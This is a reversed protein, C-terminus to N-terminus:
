QETLEPGAAEDSSGSDDVWYRIMNAIAEQCVPCFPQEGRSFMICDLTPRYFGTSSYGAGEFAGVKDALLSEHRFNAAYDASLKSHLEAEAKLREIEEEPVGSRSAEAIKDNLEHRQKQFEELKEDYEAKGWPTPIEIGPTLLHKWKLQDPDLLATINAERPEIGRPYFDNYAVSSSYYEDALGAFSHGLEHVLLYSSWQNHATFTCYLNYIGGGGYRSHNVMIVLTDYPLHAAVDRLARNDETLMYRPSGLSNFSAGISTQRFHGRTPEDCGSEQSPKLAGRVSIRDKLLAYPQYGLLVETFRNLDSTFLEAEAATYGEGIIAIDLTARPEGSVRAEVVTVGDILPETSIAVSDPDIEFRTLETVTGDRAIAEYVILLPQRPFPILVTEHFTRMKGAVADDTTRYEGFYSDFGRSCLLQGSEADHAKVAYSGLGSQDVLEVRSGAWIGQRYLRDITVHEVEANGIHFLDIRLNADVFHQDFNPEGGGAVLPLAVLIIAALVLARM